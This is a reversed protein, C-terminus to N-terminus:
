DTGASAAETTVDGLSVLIYSDDGFGCTLTDAGVGSDGTDIDGGGMLSLMDVFKQCQQNRHIAYPPSKTSLTLDM